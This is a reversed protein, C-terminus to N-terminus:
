KKVTYKEKNFHKIFKLIEAIGATNGFYSTHYHKIFDDYVKQPTKVLDYGRKFENLKNALDDDTDYVSFCKPLEGKGHPMPQEDLRWSMPWGSDPTFIQVGCALCEAIPLGFAEPFQIFFVSAVKYLGRIEEITYHRDLIITKIKLQTLTAIQLAHIHEYGPQKFDVLAIFEEKSVPQLGTDSLDFGVATYDKGPETKIETVDTVSLHWDYREFLPDGSNILQAIQSPANGLYYVEYFLVPKKIIAKLREVNYLRKWFGNPICESIVVADYKKLRKLIRRDSFYNAIKEGLWFHFSLTNNKFSVLRNLVNIEDFLDIQVGAEEFQKQLSQALILPSSNEPRTLIAIKM